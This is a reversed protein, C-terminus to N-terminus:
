LGGSSLGTLIEIINNVEEFNTVRISKGQSAEAIAEMIEHNSKEGPVFCLIKLGRNKTKNKVVKVPNPGSTHVGSSFFLIITQLSNLEAIELAREIGTELAAGPNSPRGLHDSILREVWGSFAIFVSPSDIRSVETPNGTETDFLSFKEIEDSYAIGHFQANSNYDSYTESILRIAELATTYRPVSDGSERHVDSIQAAAGVEFICVLNSPTLSEAPDLHIKELYRWSIRAADYISDLPTMSKVSFRIGLRDIQFSQGVSLILGDFDDTLDNVRQSIADAIKRNDLDRTSTLALRIKTCIPLDTSIEELLVDCDDKGSIEKFVRYDLIILDKPVNSSVRVDALMSKSGFTIRYPGDSITGIKDSVFCLGKQNLGQKAKLNM